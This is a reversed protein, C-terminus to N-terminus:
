HYTDAPHHSRDHRSGVRVLHFLSHLGTRRDGRQIDRPNGGHLRSAPAQDAKLVIDVSDDALVYRAAAFNLQPLNQTGGEDDDSCAALVFTFAAMMLYFFKKM